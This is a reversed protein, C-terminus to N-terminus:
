IREKRTMLHHTLLRFTSVYKGLTFLNNWTSISSRSSWPFNKISKQFHFDFHM